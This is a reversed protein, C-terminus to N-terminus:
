SRDLARLLIEHLTRRESVTLESIAPVNETLARRLRERVGAGDETLVIHRVRRDASSTQREVLGRAHLGEVIGTMNSADYRTLAALERMSVSGEIRLLTRAQAMSLGMGASVAAFRAKLHDTLELLLGVTEAIPSVRQGDATPFVGGTM